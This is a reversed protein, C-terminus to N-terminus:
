SPLAALLLVLAIFGLVACTLCGLVASGERKDSAFMSFLILSLGIAYFSFEPCLFGGAETRGELKAYWYVIAHLVIGCAYFAAGLVWTRVGM